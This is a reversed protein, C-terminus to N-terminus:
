PLLGYCMIAQPHSIGGFRSSLLIQSLALMCKRQTLPTLFASRTLMQRWQKHFPDIVLGISAINTNSKSTSNSFDIVRFRKPRLLISVSLNGPTKERTLLATSRKKIHEKISEIERLINSHLAANTAASANDIVPVACMACHFNTPFPPTDFAHMKAVQDSTDIIM